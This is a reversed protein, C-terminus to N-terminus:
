TGSQGQWNGMVLETPLYPSEVEIPFGADYALCTIALPGLAVNGEIYKAREQTETWYDKHLHLAKILESNFGEPDHRVLRHFLNIPQYLIMDMLDGAAIRAVQPFTMEITKTLKGVVGPQELWHTQLSDVWHYIYEDFNAGSARLLSIPVDCLRAIHDRERCVVALWFATIWNGANAHRQPGTAPIEM